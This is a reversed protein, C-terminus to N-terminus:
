LASMLFCPPLASSWAQTDESWSRDYVAQRRSIRFIEIYFLVVGLLVAQLRIVLMQRCATKTKLFSQLYGECGM